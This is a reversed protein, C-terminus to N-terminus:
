AWDAMPITSDDFKVGAHNLIMRSSEARGYLPFYMLKGM